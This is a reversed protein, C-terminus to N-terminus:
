GASARALGDVFERTRGELAKRYLWGMGPVKPRFTTHWRIAAGDDAPTVDIEARYDRLPLGSLLTYTLRRQPDREVIEERVPRSAGSRASVTTAAPASSHTSTSGRGSPGRRATASSAGSPTPGPPPRPASM